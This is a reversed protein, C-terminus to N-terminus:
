AAAQNRKLKPPSPAEAPREDPTPFNLRATLGGEPNPEFQAEGGLQRAFATMLTRGVGEGLAAGGPGDNSIELSAEDGRVSFKVSLRGGRGAFAHKQANTIAEVAFLALPALKDPDIILDDATLETRVSQGHIADGGILQAILDELFSKLDVRRLDPGQYLARYVLALATIRQRTDHMAARAAPDGLSRQQMSILSSIVQLNNKVRHHIERMLGDKHALSERLSHDRAVIADAMIDLTEALERIEPPATDAKVPRVTFRGRAYIAAIRQLYHLWRIVVQESVVWVAALALVFALIPPVISSLLNKQAWAWISQVPASMLVFLDDNVLAAAAHVRLKGDQAVASYNLPARVARQTWDPPPRGFAQPDSYVIFRGGSDAFAVATGIPLSRDATLDPRLSALSIVAVIAGDFAGKEDLIPTAALVGAEAGFDSGAPQAIVLDDGKRLQDFWPADRRALDQPVDAAACAIRGIRDFRVLNVYGPVLNKVAALRQTCHLGIAEPSLTELLLASAEIRARVTIATREAALLLGAERAAADARFAQISQVVGLALVPLLAIALALGLRSRITAPRGWAAKISM